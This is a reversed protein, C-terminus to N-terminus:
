NDALFLDKYLDAFQTGLYLAHEATFVCLRSGVYTRTYTYDYATRSFGFGSPRQEDAEVQMWPFYKWESRDNWNPLRKENIAETIIMLKYQAVQHKRFKEPLMSVDPLITPDYGGANCADEFTKIKHDM